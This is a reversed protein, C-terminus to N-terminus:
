QKPLLSYCYSYVRQWERPREAFGVHTTDAEVKRARGGTAVNWSDFAEARVTDLDRLSRIYIFTRVHSLSGPQLEGHSIQYVAQDHHFSLKYSRMREVSAALEDRDVGPEINEKKPPIVLLKMAFRSVKNWHKGFPTVRVLRSALRPATHLERRVTAGDAVFMDITFPMSHLQVAVDYMVLGGLSMANLVVHKYGHSSRLYAVTEAVGRELEFRDGSFQLYLLDTNELWEESQSESFERSDALIGAVVLTITDQGTNRPDFTLAFDGHLNDRKRMDDLLTVPISLFVFAMVLIMGWTVVDWFFEWFRM